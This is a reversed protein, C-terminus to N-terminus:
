SGRYTTYGFPNLLLPVHYHEDTAAVLFTVSVYPYFSPVGRAVFYAGTDFSIQWTGPAFDEPTTLNNVRGDADTIGSGRALWGAEGGHYVLEVALGAAPRGLTTDLVHATIPSKSM